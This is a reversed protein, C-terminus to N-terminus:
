TRRHSGTATSAAVVDLHEALGLAEETVQVRGVARADETARRRLEVADRLLRAISSTSAGIASDRPILTGALMPPRDGDDPGPAITSKACRGAYRDSPEVDAADEVEVRRAGLVHGLPV